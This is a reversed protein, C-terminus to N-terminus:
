KKCAAPRLIRTSQPISCPLSTRGFLSSVRTLVGAHNDVLLSIVHRNM